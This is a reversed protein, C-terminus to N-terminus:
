LLSRMVKDFADGQSFKKLIEREEKWKKELRKVLPERLAKKTAIIGQFDPYRLYRRARKLADEKLSPTISDILGIKKAEEERFINGWVVEKLYPPFVCERLIEILLSPVYLGVLTETFGIKSRPAMYRYDSILTIVAGGALAFGQILSFHIAPLLYLDILFKALADFVQIREERKLSLVYSPSLGNSFYKPNLSCFLIIKYGEEIAEKHAQAIEELFSPTLTNKEDSSFLIEVIEKELPNKEIM